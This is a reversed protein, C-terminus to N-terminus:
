AKLHRYRHGRYSYPERKVTGGTKEFLNLRASGGCNEAPNGECPMNCDSDPQAGGSTALTNSCFCQGAYETGAYKYGKLDCWKICGSTTIKENWYGWTKLARPNIPDIWCGKSVWGAIIGSPTAAPVATGTAKSSSTTGAISTTMATTTSPAESVSETGTLGFVAFSLSITSSTVVPSSGFTKPISSVMTAATTITSSSSPAAITSPFSSTAATTAESSSAASSVDKTYVSLKKSDGCTQAPDGACPMACKAFGIRDAPPASNGCYCEKGYQTGAYNAGQSICFDICMENTMTSNAGRIPFTRNDLDDMSCGLYSWGRSSVDTSFTEPPGIETTAGCNSQPTAMEPGMQVPNCGPLKSLLGETPEDVRRPLYCNRVRETEYYEFELCEEIVGSTSNCNDIAKQLIDVDWGNVFDGHLGYGTPDGNSLVFPATSSYWQDSFLNTEYIVEYFISVLRVPHTSPCSGMTVGDPYAMHSKHNPSDLNKGDWCSPFFIQHRYGNPCNRQPFGHTKPGGDGSFNLCAYKIASQEPVDTYNRLRPDGALMRFGPPFALVKESDTGRRPLYYITAGGLQPVSTFTGNQAQYYLTPIWYNSSDATVTCSSCTSSRADDYDMTFNFGNGGMITHLHGAVAGSNVIPDAREILLPNLCPLRWFASTGPAFCSLALLVSAAM